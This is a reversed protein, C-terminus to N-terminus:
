LNPNVLNLLRQVCHSSRIDTNGTPITSQMWDLYHGHDLYLFALSEEFEFLAINPIEIESILPLSENLRNKEINIALLNKGLEIKEFDSLTLINMPNLESPFLSDQSVEALYNSLTFSDYRSNGYSVYILANRLHQKISETIEAKNRFEFKANILEVSTLHSLALSTDGLDILRKAIRNKNPLAIDLRQIAALMAYRDDNGVHKILQEKDMEKYPELLISNTNDDSGTNNLFIKGRQEAWEKSEQEAFRLDDESLDMNKFCWNGSYPIKTLLQGREVVTNKHLSANNNDRKIEDVALNGNNMTLKDSDTNLLDSQKNIDANLLYFVAFIIAIAFVVFLIKRM